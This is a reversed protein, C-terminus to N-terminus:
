MALKRKSANILRRKKDSIKEPTKLFDDIKKALGRKLIQNLLTDQQTAMSTIEIEAALTTSVPVSTAGPHLCYGPSFSISNNIMDLLVGHKKM